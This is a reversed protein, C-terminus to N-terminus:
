ARRRLIALGLALLTLEVSDVLARATGRTLPDAVEDPYAVRAQDDKAAAVQVQRQLDPASAIRDSVDIVTIKNEKFSSVYLRKLTPALAIGWAQDPVAIREIVVLSPVDLVAICDRPASAPEPWSDRGSIYATRGDPSLAIQGMLPTVPVGEPHDPDVANALLDILWLGSFDRCSLYGKTGDPSFAIACPTM